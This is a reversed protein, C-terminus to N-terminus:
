RVEFPASAVSIPELVDPDPKKGRTVKYLEPREAKAMEWAEGSPYYGLRLRFKAPPESLSQKDTAVTKVKVEVDYDRGPPLDTTKCFDPECTMPQKTWSGSTQLREACISDIFYPPVGCGVMPLVVTHSAWRNRIRVKVRATEQDIRTAGLVSVLVVQKPEEGVQGVGQGTLLACLSVVSPIVIKRNM